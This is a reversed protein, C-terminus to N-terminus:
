PSIPLKNIESMKKDKISLSPHPTFSNNNNRRYVFITVIRDKIRSFPNHKDDYNTIKSSIILPKGFIIPEELLNDYLSCENHNSIFFHFTNGTLEKKQENFIHKQLM